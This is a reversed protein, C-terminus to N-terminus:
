GFLNKSGFLSTTNGFLSGGNNGSNFFLNNNTPNNNNNQTINGFINTPQNSSSNLFPNDKTLLSGEQKKEEQNSVFLHKSNIGSSVQSQQNFIGQENKNNGDKNKDNINNQTNKFFLGDNPKNDNSLPLNTNKKETPDSFIGKKDNMNSGGSSFIPFLGVGESKTKNETQFLSKSDQNNSLKTSFNSTNINPFLSNTKSSEVKKDSTKQNDDKKDDVKNTTNIQNINFLSTKNSDEQKNIIPQDTKFGFLSSTQNTEKKVEDKKKNDNNSNFLSNGFNINNNNNNELKKNSDNKANDIKNDSSKLNNDSKNNENNAKGFSMNIIDKNNILTSPKGLFEIQNNKAEKFIKPKKFAQYKLEKVKKIKLKKFEEERKKKDKEMQLTLEAIKQAKNRYYEEMVKKRMEFEKEYNYYLGHRGYMESINKLNEDRRRSIESKISDLSKFSMSMLSTNNITKSKNGTNNIKNKPETCIEEDQQENDDILSNKEKDNISNLNIKVESDDDNSLIKDEKLITDIKNESTRKKNLLTSKIQNNSKNTSKKILSLKENTNLININNNNSNMNNNDINFSSIQMNSNNDNPNQYYNINKFSNYSEEMLNPSSINKNNNFDNNFNNFNPINNNQIKNQPYLDSSIIDDNVYEYKMSMIDHLGKGVKNFTNLLKGIISNNKNKPPLNNYDENQNDNASDEKLSIMSNQNYINEM